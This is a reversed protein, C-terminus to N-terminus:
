DELRDYAPVTLFDLLEDGLALDLFLRKAEEGAEL